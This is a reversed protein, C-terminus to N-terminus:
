VRDETRHRNMNGDNSLRRKSILVSSIKWTLRWGRLGRNNRRTNRLWQPTKSASFGTKKPCRHFQTPIGTEQLQM